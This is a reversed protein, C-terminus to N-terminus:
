KLKSKKEGALSGELSPKYLSNPFIEECSPLFLSDPSATSDGDRSTIHCKPVYNLLPSPLAPQVWHEQFDEEVKFSETIVDTPALCGVTGSPPPNAVLIELKLHWM